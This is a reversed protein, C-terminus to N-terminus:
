KLLDALAASGLFGDVLDRQYLSVEGVGYKWPTDIVAFHASARDRGPEFYSPNLRVIGRGLADHAPTNRAEPSLGALESRIADTTSGAAEAFRVQAALYVENAVPLFLAPRGARTVLIRAGGKFRTVSGSPTFGPDIFFADSRPTSTDLDGLSEVRNVDMTFATVARTDTTVPCTACPQMRALGSLRVRYPSMTTTAVSGPNADEATVRWAWGSYPRFAPAALSSLADRMHIVLARDAAATDVLTDGTTWSGSARAEEVPMDRTSAAAEELAVIDLVSGDDTIDVHLWIPHPGPIRGDLRGVRNNLHDDLLVGNQAHLLDAFYRAIDPVGAPGDDGAQVFRRIIHGRIGTGTSFNRTGDSEVDQEVGYGPPPPFREALTPSNQRSSQPVRPSAGLVVTSCAAVVVLIVRAAM